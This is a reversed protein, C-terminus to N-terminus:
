WDSRVGKMPLYTWYEHAALKCIIYFNCIMKIEVKLGITSKLLTLKTKQKPYNLVDMLNENWYIASSDLWHSKPCSM